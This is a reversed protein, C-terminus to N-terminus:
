KKILAMLKKRTAFLILLMCLGVLILALTLSQFMWFGVLFVLIMLGPAAFFGLIVPVIKLSNSVNDLEDYPKTSKQSSDAVIKFKNGKEVVMSNNVSNDANKVSNAKKRNYYVIFAIGIAILIPFIRFLILASDFSDM